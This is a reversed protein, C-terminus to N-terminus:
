PSLPMLYVETAGSRDSIFALKGGDPSFAPFTAHDPGDALTKENKGDAGVSVIDFTGNQHRTFALRRGDPSWAPWAELGKGGSLRRLSGTEIDLIHVSEGAARGSAFALFKGDPSWAPHHDAAPHNTLRRTDSGDPLSLYIEQNGDRTSVWALKRGDPSWRPSEEFAKHPIISATASGDGKCAYIHLKGDTGQLIDHVYAVRGGDPSPHADFHPTNPSPKLFAVADGGSVPVSAIEMRGQRIRTFLLRSGDPWWQLHGKWSGDATLARPDQLFVSALLALLM